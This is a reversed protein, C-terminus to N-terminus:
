QIVVAKWLEQEKKLIQMTSSQQHEWSHNSCGVKQRKRKSATNASLKTSRMTIEKDTASSNKRPRKDRLVKDETEMKLCKSSEGDSRTTGSGATIGSNNGMIAEHVDNCIQATEDPSDPDNVPVEQKSEPIDAQTKTETPIQHKDIEVLGSSGKSRLERPQFNLEVQPPKLPKDEASNM